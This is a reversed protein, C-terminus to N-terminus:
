TNGRLWAKLFPARADEVHNGKSVFCVIPGRCLPFVCSRSLGRPTLRWSLSCGSPSNISSFWERISNFQPLVPTMNSYFLLGTSAAGVM